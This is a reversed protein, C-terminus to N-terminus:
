LCSRKEPFWEKLKQIVKQVIADKSSDVAIIACLKDGEIVSLRYVGSDLEELFMTYVKKYVNHGVVIVYQSRTSDYKDTKMIPSYESFGWGINNTSNHISSLRELLDKM